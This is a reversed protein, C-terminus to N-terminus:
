QRGSGADTLASARRGRGDLNRDIALQIQGDAAVSDAWHRVDFRGVSPWSVQVTAAVLVSRQRGRSRSPYITLRLALDYLKHIFEGTSKAVNSHHSAGNERVIAVQRFV